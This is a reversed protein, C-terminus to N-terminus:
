RKDSLCMVGVVVAAVNMFIAVQWGWTWNGWQNLSLTMVGVIVYGLRRASADQSVTRRVLAILCASSVTAASVNLLWEHTQDWDTLRSFALLLLQPFVLRHENHQEFLDVFTLQGAAQLQLLPLLEWADWFPVDVRNESVEHLLYVFALVFGAVMASQAGVSVRTGRINISVFFVVAAAAVLTRNLAPLFFALYDAFGYAVLPVGVILAAMLVWIMLFGAFPSIVCSVAVYNAGSVPFVSGIQASVFCCFVAPM